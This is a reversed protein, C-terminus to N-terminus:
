RLSRSEVFSLAAQVKAIPRLQHAWEQYTPSTGDAELHLSAYTYVRTLRVALKERALRDLLVGAGEGLRDKSLLLSLIEKLLKCNRKGTRLLPFPDELRWTQEM